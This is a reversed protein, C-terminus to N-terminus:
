SRSSGIHRACKLWGWGTIASERGFRSYRICTKNTIEFMSGNLVLIMDLLLLRAFVVDTRILNSGSFDNRLSRVHLSNARTDQDIPRM